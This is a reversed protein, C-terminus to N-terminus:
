KKLKAANKTPGGRNRSEAKEGDNMLMNGRDLLGGRTLGPAKFKVEIGLDFCRTIMTREMQKRLKNYWVDRAHLQFKQNM